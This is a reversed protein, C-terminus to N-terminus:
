CNTNASRTWRRVGQDRARGPEPAQQRCCALRGPEAPQLRADGPSDGVGLLSRAAKADKRYVALQRELVERLVAVEERGPRRATALRFALAIREETGAAEATMREALKRAAEVYTPD